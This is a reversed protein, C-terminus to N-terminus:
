NLANAGNGLGKFGMSPRKFEDGSKIQTAMKKLRDIVDDYPQDLCYVAAVLERLHAISMEKTDKVWTDLQEPSIGGGTAKILYAHRAAENPMDVFVRRDFRSPRNIIRAGLREPYNTTALHLINDINNEGDLMSLVAAEGNYNIIEDIDELVVIINRKPEIRRLAKLCTIALNVSKVIVVIGDRKVLEQMLLKVAVTKGGGPPGWLLLGRKYLLNHKRYKEESAWFKQVEQLVTETAMDPLIYIGDSAINLKELGWMGPVAFPEYIGSPLKAETAGVPMFRGNGGLAWQSHNERDEKKTDSDDEEIPTQTATSVKAVFKEEEQSLLEELIAEGDNMTVGEKILEIRLRMLAEQKRQEKVDESDDKRCTAVSCCEYWVWYGALM